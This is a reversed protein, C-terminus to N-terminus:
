AATGAAQEAAAEYVEVLVYRPVDDVPNLTVAAILEERSGDLEGEAMRLRAATVHLRALFEPLVFPTTGPEHESYTGFGFGFSRLVPRLRATEAHILALAESNRNSRVLEDLEALTQDPHLDTPTSFDPQRGDLVEYLDWFSAM